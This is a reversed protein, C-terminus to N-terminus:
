RSASRTRLQTAVSGDYVTDGVRLVVGGILRPISARSELMPEGGLMTRSATRRDAAVPRRRAAHGHAARVRCAAAAIRRVAAHSQRTSPRSPLRAPRAPRDGEFFELLLRRRGARRVRPGLMGIKEDPSVMRRPLCRRSSPFDGCCTASVRTSNRSWRTPRPRSRPPAWSPRPTSRRRGAARRRQDARRITPKATPASETM